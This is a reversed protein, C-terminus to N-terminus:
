DPIVRHVIVTSPDDIVATLKSSLVTERLTYLHFQRGTDRAHQMGDRIQQTYGQRKVSKIESVAQENVGDAIRPKGSHM